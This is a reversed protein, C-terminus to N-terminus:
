CVDEWDGSTIAALDDTSLVTDYIRFDVIGVNSFKSVSLAANQSNSPSGGLIMYSGHNGTNPGVKANFVNPIGGVNTRQTVLSGDIYTRLEGNNVTTDLQLACHVWAAGASASSIWNGSSGTMFDGVQGNNADGVFGQWNSNYTRYWTGVGNNSSLGGLYATANFVADGQAEGNGLNRMWFCVTFDGAAFITNINSDNNSTDVVTVKGYGSTGNFVAYSPSGIASPGGAAFTASVFSMQTSSAGSHGDDDATSSDTKLKWWHKLNAAQTITDPIGTTSTIETRSFISSANGLTTVYPTGTLRLTRATPLGLAFPAQISQNGCLNTYETSGSSLTTIIYDNTNSV